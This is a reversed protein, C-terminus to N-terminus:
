VLNSYIIPNFSRQHISWMGNPEGRLTAKHTENIYILDATIECTKAEKKEIYKITAIITTTAPATDNISIILFDIPKIHGFEQRVKGAKKNIPIDLYDTILIAM